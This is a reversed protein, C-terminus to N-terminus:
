RCPPSACHMEEPAMATVGTSAAATSVASAANGFFGTFWPVRAGLRVFTAVTEGPGIGITHSVALVKGANSILEVIYTGTELHAFVFQGAENAVTSGVVKGTEVDRLRLKALPIPANDAKWAAGMITTSPAGSQAATAAAALHAGATLIAGACVVALPRVMQRLQSRM